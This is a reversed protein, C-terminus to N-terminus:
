AVMRHKVVTHKTPLFYVASPLTKAAMKEHQIIRHKDQASLIGRIPPMKAAM